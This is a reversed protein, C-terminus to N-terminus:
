ITPIARLSDIERQFNKIEELKKGLDKPNYGLGEYDSLRRLNDELDSLSPSVKKYERLEEDLKNNIEGLKNNGELRKLLQGTLIKYGIAQVANREMEEARNGNSAFPMSELVRFAEEFKEAKLEKQFNEQYGRCYSIGLFM